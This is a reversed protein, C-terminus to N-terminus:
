KEQFLDEQYQISLEFFDQKLRSMDGWDHCFLELFLTFMLSACFFSLFLIVLYLPFSVKSFLGRRIVTFRSQHSMTRVVQARKESAGGKECEASCFGRRLRNKVQDLLFDRLPLLSKQNQTSIMTQM